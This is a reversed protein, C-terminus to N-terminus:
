ARGQAQLYDRIIQAQEEDDLNEAQYLVSEVTEPDTQGSELLAKTTKLRNSKQEPTEPEMDYRPSVGAESLLQDVCYANPRVDSPPASLIAKITPADGNKCAIELAEMGARYQNIVELSAEPKQAGEIGHMIKSVTKADGEQAAKRLANEHTEFLANPVAPHSTLAHRLHGSSLYEPAKLRKGRIDDLQSGVKGFAQGFIDPKEPKAPSKQKGNSEPKKREAESSLALTDGTTSSEPVNGSQATTKNSSNTDKLGTSKHSVSSIGVQFLEKSIHLAERIFNTIL